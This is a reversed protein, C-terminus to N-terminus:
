VDKKEKLWPLQGNNFKLKGSHILTRKVRTQKGNDEDYLHLLKGASIVM